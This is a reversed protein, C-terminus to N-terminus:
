IKNEKTDFQKGYFALRARKLLKTYMNKYKKCKVEDCKNRSKM